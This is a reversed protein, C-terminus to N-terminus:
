VLSTDSIIEKRYENLLSNKSIFGLYKSKQDLVPLKWTNTREFKHMMDDQSDDLYIFEEPMKSFRLISYEIREQDFIVEAVDEFKIVGSLEGNQKVVAYINKKSRKLVKILDGLKDKETLVHIDTELFSVVNSESIAKKVKPSKTFVSSRLISHKHYHRVIFFSISSVTMLPVFLEYGKAVEAILFIATLPAYFIGSLAGAMGVLTFNSVPLNFLGTSNLGSSFVFGSMGGVFLSPAFNGGNGGSNITVSTAIAKAFMTAIIFLYWWPSGVVLEVITNHSLYGYKIKAIAGIINYGEGFLPPFLFCLVMLIFGGFIAKKYPKEFTSNIYNKVRSSIDLYSLTILGCFFGFIAYVFINRYNFDQQYPFSLLISEKLFVKACLIGSVSALMLPIFNTVLADALLVEMAFIMGTVPANFIASIGAAAGAALMLTRERYDLQYPVSLNAGIASGTAVIPGELGSSGGLGVTIASTIFNSFIKSSPVISSKNDIDDIVSEVGKEIKGDFYRQVIWVSILIGLGPILIYFYWNTHYEFIFSQFYHVVTKLLVAALGAVLGVLIALVALFQNRNLKTSFYILPKFLIRM